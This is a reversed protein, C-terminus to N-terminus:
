VYRGVEVLLGLYLCAGKVMGDDGLGRPGSAARESRAENEEGKLVIM